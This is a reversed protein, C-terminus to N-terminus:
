PREFGGFQVDDGEIWWSQLLCDAGRLGHHAEGLRESPVLVTVAWEKEALVGIPSRLSAADEGLSLVIEVTQADDAVLCLTGAPVGADVALDRLGVVRIPHEREAYVDGVADAVRESIGLPLTAPLAM